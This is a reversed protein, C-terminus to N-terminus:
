LVEVELYKKMFQGRPAWEVREDQNYVYRGKIDAYDRGKEPMDASVFM